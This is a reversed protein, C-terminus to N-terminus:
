GCNRYILIGEKNIHQRLAEDAITGYAVVDFFYPLYTDEEIDFRLRTALASTVGEGKLAIDVDSAPKHTGLARSGFLIAEEVQPYAAIFRIIEALQQDSLGYSMVKNLENQLAQVLPIFEDRIFKITEQLVVTNYVHSTMNRQAIAAMWGEPSTILGARFAVRVTQKSNGVSNYGDYELYDKMTKWASEFTFEFAQILAIQIVEDAPAVQYREFVRGFTQYADDFNQFRQVWRLDQSM